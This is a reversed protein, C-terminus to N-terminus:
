TSGREGSGQSFMASTTALSSRRAAETAEGEIMMSPSTQPSKLGSATSYKWRTQARIFAAPRSAATSPQVSIGSMMSSPEPELGIWVEDGFAPAHRRCM